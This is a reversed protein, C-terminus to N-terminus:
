FARRNPPLSAPDKDRIRCSISDLFIAAFLCAIILLGTVVAPFWNQIM